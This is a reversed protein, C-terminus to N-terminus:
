SQASGTTKAKAKRKVKAKKLRDRVKTKVANL